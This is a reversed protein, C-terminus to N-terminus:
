ITKRAGLDIQPTQDALMAVYHSSTLISKHKTSTTQWKRTFESFFINLDYQGLSYTLTLIPYLVIFLVMWGKEGTRKSM